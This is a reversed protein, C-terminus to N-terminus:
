KQIETLTEANPTSAAKGFPIEGPELVGAFSVWFALAIIAVVIFGAFALVKQAPNAFVSFLRGIIIATAFGIAFTIRPDQNACWRWIATFFEPLNYFVSSDM